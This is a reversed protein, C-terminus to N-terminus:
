CRLFAQSLFLLIDIEDDAVPKDTVNIFIVFPLKFFFFLLYLFVLYVSFLSFSPDLFVLIAATEDTECEIFVNM